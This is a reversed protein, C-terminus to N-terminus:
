DSEVKSFFTHSRNIFLLFCHLAKGNKIGMWTGINQDPWAARMEIFM